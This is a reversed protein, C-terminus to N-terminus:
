WLGDPLGNGDADTYDTTSGDGAGDDSVDMYNLIGDGDEDGAPNNSGRGENVDLVGDNDDDIDLANIIGDLDTDKDVIVSFSTFNRRGCSDTVEFTIICNEQDVIAPNPTYTVGLANPDSFTGGCTDTWEYTFPPAIGSVEAVVSFDTGITLQPPITGMKIKPRREIGAQLLFNGYVRAAAVDEAETGGQIKHSAEYMVMGQTNDGFARGYALAVAPGTPYEGSIVEPHDDDTLALITSDRWGEIEPIYIQESGSQLAGDMTGIFQM